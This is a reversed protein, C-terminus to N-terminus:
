KELREELLTMFEQGPKVLLTQFGEKAAADLNTQSDDIFLTEEPIIECERSAIRFIEPAPKMVKCKYSRVISDFYAEPGSEGQKRFEESIKGDWMIPNTNSLMCIKYGRGRLQRLADLRKEPIGILFAEFAKNIEEDTVDPKLYKRMEARFEDPTVSGNEIGMFPGSQVYEGLFDEPHAMGLKRFAEICDSRRIDMVVGGLDFLINRIM